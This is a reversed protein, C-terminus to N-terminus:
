QNILNIRFYDSLIQEAEVWGIDDIRISLCIRDEMSPNEVGHPLGTKVLAANGTTWTDLVELKAKPYTKYLIDNPSRPHEFLKGDDVPENYWIMKGQGQVLLNFSFHHTTNCDVFDTHINQNLDGAPQYFIMLRPRLGFPKLYESFGKKLAIATPILVMGRESLVKQVFYRINDVHLLANLDVTFNKYCIM